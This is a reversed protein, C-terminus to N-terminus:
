ATLSHITAGPFKADIETKGRMAARLDSVRMANVGQEHLVFAKVAAAFRATTTASERRQKDKQLETAAVFIPNKDSQGEHVLGAQFLNLDDIISSRPWGKLLLLFVLGAAENVKFTPSARGQVSGAAIEMADVLLATHSKIAKVTDRNTRLLYKRAEEENEGAIRRLTTFAQKLIAQKRKSHEVHEIDLYDSAFRRRGTDIAIISAPTMGFTVQMEIPQGALVLGALRHQGDGLHSTTLFGIGQNTFEWEGGSIERAYEESVAPLWERNQKNHDIFVIAAMGPTIMVIDSARASDKARAILAAAKSKDDDTAAEYVAVIKDLVLKEVKNLAENLSELNTTMVIKRKSNPMIAGFARSQALADLTIM